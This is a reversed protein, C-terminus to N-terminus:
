INRFVALGHVRVPVKVEVRVVGGVDLYSQYPIEIVASSADRLLSFVQLRLRGM